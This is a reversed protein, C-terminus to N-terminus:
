LIHYNGLMLADWYLCWYVINYPDGFFVGLKPFGGYKHFSGSRFCIGLRVLFSGDDRAEDVMGPYWMCDESYYALVQDGVKYDKFVETVPNFDFPRLNLNLSQQSQSGYSTMRLEDKM